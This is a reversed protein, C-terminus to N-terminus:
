ISSRIVEQQLGNCFVRDTSEPSEVGHVGHPYRNNLIQKLRLKNIHQSKNKHYAEIEERVKIMNTLREQPSLPLDIPAEQM